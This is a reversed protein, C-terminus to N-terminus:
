DDDDYSTVDIHGGEEEPQGIDILVNCGCASLISFMAALDIPDFSGRELENIMGPAAGTEKEFREISWGTRERILAIRNAVLSKVRMERWRPHGSAEYINGIRHMWASLPIGSEGDLCEKRDQLM